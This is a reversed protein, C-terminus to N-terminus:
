LKMIEEAWYLLFEWLDDVNEFHHEKGVKDIYPLIKGDEDKRSYVYFLIADSAGDDFCFNILSEIVKFYPDDYSTFDINEKELLNNQREWIDQFKKIVSAFEDRLKEEEDFYDDRMTIGSGLIQEVLKKIEKKRNM